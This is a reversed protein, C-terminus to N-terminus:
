QAPVLALHNRPLRQLTFNIKLWEMENCHIGKAVMDGLITGKEPNICSSGM